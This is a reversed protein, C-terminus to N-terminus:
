HAGESPARPSAHDQSHVRIQGLQGGGSAVPPPDRDPALHPGRRAHQPCAGAHTPAREAVRAPDSAKPYAHSDSRSHIQISLETTAVGIGGALAEPGRKTHRKLLMGTR